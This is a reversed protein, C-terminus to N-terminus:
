RLIRMFKKTLHIRVLWILLLLVLYSTLPRPIYLLAFNFIVFAFIDRRKQILLVLFPTLHALYYKYVHLFTFPILLSLLLHRTLLKDEDGHYARYLLLGYTILFIIKFILDIQSYWEPNASTFLFSSLLYLPLALTAPANLPTLTIQRGDHWYYTYIDTTLITPPHPFGLEYYNVPLVGWLNKPIRLLSYLYLRSDFFIYPISFLIVMSAVILLYEGIRRYSQRKRIFFLIIPFALFTTQKLLISIALTISSVKLREKLLLYTSVLLFFTSLSPNLWLYDIYALNIPAIIFLLSSMLAIRRNSFQKAILYVPVVILADSIVLPLAMSWFYPLFSFFTLTYLFLPPYPYAFDRYPIFGEKFVQVRSTYFYAYDKFGESIPLSIGRQTLEISLIFILSKVGISIVLLTIIDLKVSLNERINM